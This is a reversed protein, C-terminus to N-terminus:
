LKVQHTPRGELAARVSWRGGTEGGKAGPEAPPAQLGRGMETLPAPAGGRVCALAASAEAHKM